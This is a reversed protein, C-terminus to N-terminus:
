PSWTGAAVDLKWEAHFTPMSIKAGSVVIPQFVYTALTNNRGPHDTSETGDWRDGWFLYVTGASGVVPTVNTSQSLWTKEGAPAVLGQRVVPMM